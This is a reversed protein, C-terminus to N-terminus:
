STGGKRGFTPLLVSSEILPRRQIRYRGLLCPQYHVGGTAECPRLTTPRDACGARRVHKSWCYQGRALHRQCNPRTRHTPAENEMLHVNFERPLPTLLSGSATSRQAIQMPSAFKVPNGDSQDHGEGLM